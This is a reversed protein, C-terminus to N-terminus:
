EYIWHMTGNEIKVGISPKVYRYFGCNSKSRNAIWLMQKLATRLQYQEEKAYYWLLAIEGDWHDLLREKINEPLKVRAIRGRAKEAQQAKRTNIMDLNHYRTKMNAELLSLGSALM